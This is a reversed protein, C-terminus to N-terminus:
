VTLNTVLTPILAALSQSQAAEIYRRRMTDREDASLSLLRTLARALSEQDPAYVDDGMIVRFDESAAIVLAGTAAAEFITKDYMGSRSCNVFIEHARYVDPTQSHPIGSHFRVRGHLGLAEARAKLSEYYREDEPQPSGYLSAIFSVSKGILSGLAEIFRDPHKAPAMRALFLISRPEREANEPTFQALDIGVPMLVTKHYKATYSDRSTCFVNTCWFAAIDTLVSGAYHNRWLYAPKHLLKWMPGAILLYEQNMHVFVRDYEHRLKWALWKFRIAYVLSPVTGKEKGLSHVRVTGPLHHEGEFLCIVEIHDFHTALATVWQCFFGLVPDTEDMVQTVILLRM